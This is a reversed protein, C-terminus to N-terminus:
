GHDLSFISVCLVGKFPTRDDCLVSTTALVDSFLITRRKKIESEKGKLGIILDDRSLGNDNIKHLFERVNVQPTELATKLVKRSPIEKNPHERIHRLVESRNM